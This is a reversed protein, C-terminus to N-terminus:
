LDEKKFPSQLLSLGLKNLEREAKIRRGHKAANLQRQRLSPELEITELREYAADLSKLIGQFRNYYDKPFKDRTGEIEHITEYITDQFALIEARQINTLTTM